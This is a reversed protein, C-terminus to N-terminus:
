KGESKQHSEVVCHSASEDHIKRAFLSPQVKGKVFCSPDLIIGFYINVNTM